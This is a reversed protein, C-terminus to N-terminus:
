RKNGSPHARNWAEEFKDLEYNHFWTRPLPQDTIEYSGDQMPIVRLNRIGTNTKPVQKKIKVAPENGSHENLKSDQLKSNM